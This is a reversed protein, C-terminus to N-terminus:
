NPISINQLQICRIKIGGYPPEFGGAGALCEASASVKESKRPLSAFNTASWHLAPSAATTMVSWRCAGARMPRVGAGRSSRREDKGLGTSKVEFEAQAAEDKGRLGFFRPGNWSTGTIKRAIASLSAYTQGSWYLGGPAVAVEHIKGDFERLIVSGIKLHRIPEAGPKELSILLRRLHPDLGGPRQEQLRYALARAILEKSLVDPAPRGTTDRWLVRLQDINLSAIRNIRYSYPM